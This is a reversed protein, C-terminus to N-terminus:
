SKSTKTKVIFAVVASTIVGMSLSETISKKMYAPLNFMELARTETLIHKDTYFKVAKLFFEPSIVTFAIWQTIPSLVAIFLSLIMGSVVGDKWSMQGNFVKKKKELLALVYVLIAPIAFLMSVAPQKGIATDHLGLMKELIVWLISVITFIGAWRIEIIYNKM